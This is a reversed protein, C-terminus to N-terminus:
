PAAPTARGIRYHIWVPAGAALRRLEANSNGTLPLGFTPRSRRSARCARGAQAYTVARPTLTWTGNRACAARRRESCAAGVWRGDANTRACGTGAKPEGPAWSWLTSRIRLDQPTVQDLGLLTVGCDTMASVKADTLRGPDLSPTTPDVVTAILTSDEFYRVIKQQYVSRKYTADCAPFPRYRATNGSEVHVSGWEHVLSGWGEACDGVLIVQNGAARVQRRTLDLPLTACGKEGIRAPDPRQIRLQQTLTQVVSAYGAADEVHDELYLLLVEDPNAKLWAAVPGLVEAFGAENTCGAHFEAAGRGHCVLVQGGILHLDLELSRVDVDLQQTMTMRQNSDAHSLTLGEAVSNFSNHTGVFAADRLPVRDGLRSQFVAARHEWSRRYAEVDPVYRTLAQTVKSLAVCPLALPSLTHCGPGEPNETQQASAVPAALLLLLAALVVGSSFVAKM